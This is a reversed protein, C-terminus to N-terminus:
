GARWAEMRGKGAALKRESRWRGESGVNTRSKTQAQWTRHSERFEGDRSTNVEREREGDRHRKGETCCIKRQLDKYVQSCVVMQEIRRKRQRVDKLIM